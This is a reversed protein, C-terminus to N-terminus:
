SAPTTYVHDDVVVNDIRPSRDDQGNARVDPRAQGEARRQMVQSPLMPADGHQQDPQPIPQWNTRGQRLQKRWEAQIQQRMAEEAEQRERWLWEKEEEDGNAGVFRTSDQSSRSASEEEEEEGEDSLRSRGEAAFALDYRKPQVEYGESGRRVRSWTWTHASTLAQPDRETEYDSGYADPETLRPPMCGDDMDVGAQQASDQEDDAEVGDYAQAEQQYNPHWPPFRSVMRKRLSADGRRQNAQLAPNLGKGFTFPDGSLDPGSRGRQSRSPDQPPWVYQEIEDVSESIDFRVGDGCTVSPLCWHVPSRGLVSQINRLTGLDFPYDVQRIRGRNIMRDVKDKEWGEITTANACLCWFHYLSFIGVLLLTPACLAFNLVLFVMTWTGPPRWIGGHRLWWYDAVRGTLITLHMACTVDVCALFRIFSAYNRQGVCNAVWPCHHDMRLVCRKCTRCHHTRPPKFSRCPKCYRVRAAGDITEHEKGAAAATTMALVADPPKWGYPVGGPDLMVCYVYNWLIGLSGLNFPILLKALAWLAEARRMPLERLFHPIVICVQSSVVLFVILSLTGTVRRMLNSPLILM